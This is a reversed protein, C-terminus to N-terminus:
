TGYITPEGTARAMLKWYKRRKSTADYIIPLRFARVARRAYFGYAGKETTRERGKGSM